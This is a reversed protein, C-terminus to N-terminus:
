TTKNGTSYYGNGVLRFAGGYVKTVKQGCMCYKRNNEKRFESFHGCKPCQYTYLTM